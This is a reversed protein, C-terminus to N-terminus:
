GGISPPTRDKVPAGAAASSNGLDSVAGAAGVVDIPNFSGGKLAAALPGLRRALEDVKTALPRLRDDSLAARRAQKLEHAAFLSAAGAKILAKTRGPAGKKLSGARYPKYVYRHFAGFALGAHLVFKTKAFHVDPVEQTTVQGNPGTSTVTKTKDGCGAVVLAAALLAISCRRM